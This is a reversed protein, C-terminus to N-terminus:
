SAESMLIMETAYPYLKAVSTCLTNM